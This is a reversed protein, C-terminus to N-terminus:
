KTEELDLVLTIPYRKREELGQLMDTSCTEGCGTRCWLYKRGYMKNDVVYWAFIQYHPTKARTKYKAFAVLRSDPLYGRHVNALLLTRLFNFDEFTLSPNTCSLNKLDLSMQKEM